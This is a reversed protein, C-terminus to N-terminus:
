LLFEGSITVSWELAQQLRFRRGPPDWRWDFNPNQAPGNPIDVLNFTGAQTEGTLLHPLQLAAAGRLGLVLRRSAHLVAGAQVSGSLFPETALLKGTAPTLENYWRARTTYDAGVRLDFALRQAQVRDEMATVETGLAVGYVRPPDAETQRAPATRCNAVAVAAMQGPVQTALEAAHECNSYTRATRQPLRVRLQLYPEVAGLRRSVASSLEYVWLKRGVAARHGPSASPGAAFRAATLRDQAPDYRAATPATVDLAVVWTPVWPQRAESLPAWALGVRLDDFAGGGYLTHGLPFM